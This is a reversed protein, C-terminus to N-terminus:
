RDTETEICVERLADRITIVEASSPELFYRGEGGEEERIKEPLDNSRQQFRRVSRSISSFM